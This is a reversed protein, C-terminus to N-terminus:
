RTGLLWRSAGWARPGDRGAYDVGDARNLTVGRIRKSPRIASVYLGKATEIGNGASGDSAPCPARFFEAAYVTAFFYTIGARSGIRSGNQVKSKGDLWSFKELSIGVAKLILAAPFGVREALKGGIGISRRSRTVDM